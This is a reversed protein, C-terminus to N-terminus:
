DVKPNYKERNKRRMAKKWVNLVDQYQFYSDLLLLLVSALFVGVNQMTFRFIIFLLIYLIPRFSLRKGTLFPQILQRICLIYLYLLGFSNADIPNMEVLCFLVAAVLYIGAGVIPIWEFLAIILAHFFIHPVQFIRFFIMSGIFIIGKLIAIRIFFDVDTYSNKIKIEQIYNKLYRTYQEM